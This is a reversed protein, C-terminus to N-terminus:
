RHCRNILFEPAGAREERFVVDSEPWAGVLMEGHGRDPPGLLRVVVIIPEVVTNEAHPIAFSGAEVLGDICEPLAVPVTGILM